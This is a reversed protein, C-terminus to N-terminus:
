RKESNSSPAASPDSLAPGLRGLLGKRQTLAALHFKLGVVVMVPSHEDWQLLATVSPPANRLHPGIAPVMVAENGTYTTRLVAKPLM